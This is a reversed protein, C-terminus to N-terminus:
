FSVVSDIFAILQPGRKLYPIVAKAEQRGLEVYLDGGERYIELTIGRRSFEGDYDISESGRLRFPSKNAFDVMETAKNEEYFVEVKMLEDALLLAEEGSMPLWGVGRLTFRTSDQNKEVAVHVDNIQEVEWTFEYRKISFGEDAAVPAAGLSGGLALAIHAALISSSLLRGTAAM